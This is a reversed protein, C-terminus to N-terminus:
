LWGGLLKNVLEEAKKKRSDDPLGQPQSSMNKLSKM